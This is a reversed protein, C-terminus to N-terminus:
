QRCIFTSYTITCSFMVAIKLIVFCHSRFALPWQYFAEIKCEELTSSILHVNDLYKSHCYFKLPMPEVLKHLFIIINELM